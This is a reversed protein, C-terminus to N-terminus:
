CYIFMNFRIGRFGYVFIVFGLRYILVHGLGVMFMSRHVQVSCAHRMGGHIATESRRDGQETAALQGARAACSGWEFHCPELPTPLRLDLFLVLLM